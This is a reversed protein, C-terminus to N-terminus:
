QTKFILQESVTDRDSADDLSPVLIARIIDDTGPQFPQFSRRLCFKVTPFPQKMLM